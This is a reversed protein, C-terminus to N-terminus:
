DLLGMLVLAAQQRDNLAKKLEAQANALDKQAKQRIARLAEVKQQIQKIDSDKKELLDLLAEAAKQGETLEQGTMQAMESPRNWRPVPPQDAAGTDAGRARRGVTMTISVRAESQLRIVQQVKPQIQSWEQDTVGLAQRIAQENVRGFMGMGMGMGGM